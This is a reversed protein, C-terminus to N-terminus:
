GAETGADLPVELGEEEEGERGKEGEEEKENEERRDRKAKKKRTKTASGLWMRLPVEEMDEGSGVGIDGGSAISAGGAM